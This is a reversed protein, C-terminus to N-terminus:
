KNLMEILDMSKGQTIDGNPFQMDVTIGFAECQMVKVVTATPYINNNGIIFEQGLLESDKLEVQTYITM